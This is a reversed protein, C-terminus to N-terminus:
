GSSPSPSWDMSARPVSVRRPRTLLHAPQLALSAQAPRSLNFALASDGRMLRLGVLAVLHVSMHLGDQEGPYHACCTSVRHSAVRSVQRAALAVQGRSRPLLARCADSPSM